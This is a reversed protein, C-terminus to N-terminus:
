RDLTVVKAGSILVCVAEQSVSRFDSSTNCFFCRICLALKQRDILCSTVAIEMIHMVGFVFLFWLFCGTVFGYQHSLTVNLNHNVVFLKANLRLTDLPCVIGKLINLEYMKNSWLSVWQFMRPLCFFHRCKDFHYLWHTNGHFSFFLSTMFLEHWIYNVSISCHHTAPSRLVLFHM